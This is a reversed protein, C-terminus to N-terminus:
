GSWVIGFRPSVAATSVVSLTIRYVVCYDM